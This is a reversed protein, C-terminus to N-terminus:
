LPGLLLSVLIANQSLSVFLQLASSRSVFLGLLLSMLIANRSLPVFLQPASSRSVHLGLLASVLISILGSEVFFLLFLNTHGGFFVKNM